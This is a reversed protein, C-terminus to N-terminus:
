FNSIEQLRGKDRDYQLTCALGVEGTFRNKLVRLQRMDEGSDKNIELSLCIDSLQAVSHSGRLQNLRVQAGDEHGRDGDPRRLHSVVIMGIDLEQVITRLTTMAMDILKREDNTALGSVLISIHDLIIWEVELAQVMYRIRNTVVEVDTSGFHDYLQLSDDDFMNKFASSIDADDVETRDVTINKNLQIGILGLLTRKVSEELMILGVRKNDSLLKHAIERVLTTKGMGSGATVTVLESRRLGKTIDNLSPYPYKTDSVENEKLVIDLCDSASKIGDPRYPKAQYIAEILEKTRGALLMDNADKLPLHAIRCKGAPLVEACDEAAKRGPEDQDFMLVVDDFKDIYEWHTQLAKRASSAGNPLSVVPWKNDQVQSVSMADIEGETIILRRGSSWNHSGFLEASKSEGKITFDKEPSRIKQAVIAGSSNRLNAVENLKNNISTVGYGFKRCTAETIRRHPLAQAESPLLAQRFEKKKTQIPLQVATPSNQQTTQCVYCHTHGDDYVGLGDSSGCNECSAKYLESSSHDSM